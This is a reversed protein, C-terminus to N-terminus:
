KKKGLGTKKAIKARTKAYNPATMPYTDSLNWKARYSEPTMNWKRKIYRRMMTHWTGDEFCMISDPRISDTIQKATLQVAAARRLSETAQRVAEDITLKPNVTVAAAALAAIADVSTQPKSNSATHKKPM